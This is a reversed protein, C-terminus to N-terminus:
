LTKSLDPKKCLEYHTCKTCVCINNCTSCDSGANICIFHPCYESGVIAFYRKEHFYPNINPMVNTNEMNKQAPYHRSNREKKIVM